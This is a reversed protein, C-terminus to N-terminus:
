DILYKERVTVWNCLLRYPTGVGGSCCSLTYVQSNVWDLNPKTVLDKFNNRSKIDNVRELYESSGIEFYNNFIDDDYDCVFVSFLEVESSKRETYIYMKNKNERYERDENYMRLEGFMKFERMSHGFIFQHADLMYDSTDPYVKISGIPSYNGEIDKYLYEEISSGRLVPYDVSTYPIYIWGIVDSNIKKLAKFDIVRDIPNDTEVVVLDKIVKNQTDSKIVPKYEIYALYGFSLALIVLVTIIVNIINRKM